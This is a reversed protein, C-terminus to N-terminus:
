CSPHLFPVSEHSNTHRKDSLLSEITFLTTKRTLLGLLQLRSTMKRSFVYNASELEKVTQRVSEITVNKAIKKQELREVQRELQRYLKKIRQNKAKKKLEEESIPEGSCSKPLSNQSPRGPGKKTNEKRRWKARRNQFWVQVRSEVLDLRLALAERAYLDPYHSARFAKELESLQWINFNIRTRKRKEKEKKTEENTDM